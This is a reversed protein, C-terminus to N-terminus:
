LWEAPAWASFEAVWVRIPALVGTLTIYAAVGLCLLVLLSRMNGRGLLVLARAGCGNALTMGYGFLIGGIPVMLWSFSPALYISTGLDLVGLRAFVQTGIIAVALALAFSRLKNGAKGSWKETLGRHLCFGSIQGMAGFLLGILL